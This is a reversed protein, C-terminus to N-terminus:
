VLYDLFSFLPDMKKAAVDRRVSSWKVAARIKCWRARPSGNSSFFMGYNSSFIDVSQESPDIFIENEQWVSTGFQLDINKKKFPSSINAAAIDEDFMHMELEDQNLHPINLGLRASKFDDHHLNSKPMSVGFVSSADVPVMKNLSKYLQQKLDEVVPMQYMSLKDLPLYSQGDFTAGVVTLVSDVLLGTGNAGCPYVYMKDDLVCDKAHKIITVWIKNSSGGLLERLLSRNTAYMQLFDKVTRIRYSALRKHFVGDKAIKELRWIEDGLYPPHHKQYSEGRQDKVKFPQSKAERIRDRNTADKIRAGIMFKGSRRWSSNDTFCFEGLDAVGNELTVSLDGTILPRRGDRACIVKDEFEKKSWDQEDDVSFDGDLPVIEVKLSSYPGSTVISNSNVDFLVIKLTTNEKSKIQSGTFFTNPLKTQFRLQLSTTKCPELVNIPSRPLTSFFKQCSRQVEEQVWRRLLPELTSTLERSSLGFLANQSSNSSTIRRKVQQNGLKFAEGEGDGFPRKFVM